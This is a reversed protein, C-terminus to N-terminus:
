VVSKRDKYDPVNLSLPSDFLQASLFEGLYNASQNSALAEIARSPDPIEPLPPLEPLEHAFSSTPARSAISGEVIENVIGPLEGSFEDFANIQGTFGSLTQFKALFKSAVRALVRRVREAPVNGDHCAVFLVQNDETVQKMFSFQLNESTRISQIEGVESGLEACFTNMAALLGALRAEDM